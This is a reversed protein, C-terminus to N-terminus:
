STKIPLCQDLGHEGRTAGECHAQALSGDNLDLDGRRKPLHWPHYGMARSRVDLFVRYDSRTRATAENLIRSRRFGENEQMVRDSRFSQARAWLEFVVRTEDGSGDDALLGEDSRRV